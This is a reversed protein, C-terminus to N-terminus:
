SYPDLQHSTLRKQKEIKKFSIQTVKPLISETRCNLREFHNVCAKKSVKSQLFPKLKIIPKQIITPNQPTISERLEDTFKPVGFEFLDKSKPCSSSDNLKTGSRRGSM